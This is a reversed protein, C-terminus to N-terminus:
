CLCKNTGDCLDEETQVTECKFQNHGEIVIPDVQIFVALKQSSGMISVAYLIVYLDKFIPHSIYKVEYM